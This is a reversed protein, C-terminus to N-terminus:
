MNKFQPNLYSLIPGRRVAHNHVSSRFWHTEDWQGSRVMAQTPCSIEFLIVEM